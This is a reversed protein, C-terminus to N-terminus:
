GLWPQWRGCAVLPAGRARSGRRGRRRGGQVRLHRGGLGLGARDIKLQLAPDAAGGM